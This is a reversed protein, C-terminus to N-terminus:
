KSNTNRKVSIEQLSTKWVNVPNQRCNVVVKSMAVTMKRRRPIFIECPAYYEAESIKRPNEAQYLLLTIAVIISETQHLHIHSIQSKLQM